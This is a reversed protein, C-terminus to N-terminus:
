KLLAFDIPRGVLLKLYEKKPQECPVGSYLSILMKSFQTSAPSFFFPFFVQNDWEYRGSFLAMGEPAQKELYLKHFDKQLKIHENAVAQKYTLYVKFWSM